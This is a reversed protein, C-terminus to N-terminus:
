RGSSPGAPRRVPLRAPSPWGHFVAEAARQPNEQDDERRGAAVPEQDYREDLRPQRLQGRRGRQRGLGGRRDPGAGVLPERGQGVHKRVAGPLPVARDHELAALHPQEELVVVRQGVATHIEHGAREDHQRIAISGRGSGGGAAGDHHPRRLTGHELEVLREVQPLASEGPEDAAIKAPLHRDPARRALRRALVLNLNDGAVDHEVFVLHPGGLHHLEAVAARAAAAASEHGLEHGTLGGRLVPRVEATDIRDAEITVHSHPDLLTGAAAQQGAAGIGRRGALRRLGHEHAAAAAEAEVHRRVHDRQLILDVDHPRALARGAVPEGAVQERDQQGAAALRLSVVVAATRRRGAGPMAPELRRLDLRLTAGRNHRAHRGPDLRPGRPEAVLDGRPPDHEVTLLGHREDHPLALELGALDVVRRPRRPIRALKQSHAGAPEVGAGFAPRGHSGAPLLPQPQPGIAPAVHRRHEAGRLDIDLRLAPQCGCLHVQPEIQQGGAAVDVRRPLM